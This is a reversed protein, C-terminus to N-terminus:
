NLVKSLVIVIVAVTQVCDVLSAPTPVPTVPDDLVVDEVVCLHCRVVAADETKLLSKSAPKPVPKTASDCSTAADIVLATLDATSAM